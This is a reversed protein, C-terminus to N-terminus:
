ASAGKSALLNADGFRHRCSECREPHLKIPERTKAKLVVVYLPVNVAGCLPCRTVPRTM